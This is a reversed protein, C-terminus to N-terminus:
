ENKKPSRGLEAIRQIKEFDEPTNMNLFYTEKIFPFSAADLVATDAQQILAYLSYSRNRGTGPPTCALREEILPLLSRHYFGPFFQLREAAQVVVIQHGPSSTILADIVERNMLPLDCSIVINKDTTSQKLAAHLGALPGAGPYLDPIVPLNLFSYDEARRASIWVQKFISQMLEVAIGIASHHGIRVLAKDRGFRASAGGALIIGTIEKYM